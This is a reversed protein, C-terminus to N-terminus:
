GSIRAATPLAPVAWALRDWDAVSRPATSSEKGVPRISSKSCCEECCFAASVSKM